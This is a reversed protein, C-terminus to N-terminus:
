FDSIESPLNRSEQQTPNLNQSSKKVRKFYSPTRYFIWILAGYNFTQNIQYQYQYQYAYNIQNVISLM